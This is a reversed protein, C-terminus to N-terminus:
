ISTTKEWFFDAGEDFLQVHARIIATLTLWFWMIKQTFSELQFQIESSSIKFKLKLLNIIRRFHVDSKNLENQPSHFFKRKSLENLIRFNKILNILNNAFLLFDRKHLSFRGELLESFIDFHTWEKWQIMWLVYLAWCWFLGSFVNGLMEVKISIKCQVVDAAQDFTRPISLYLLSFKVKWGMSKINYLTYLSLLKRQREWREGLLCCSYFIFYVPRERATCFLIQMSVVPQKGEILAKQYVNSKLWLHFVCLFTFHFSQEWRDVSICCLHLISATSFYVDLSNWVDCMFPGFLWRRLIPSCLRQKTM